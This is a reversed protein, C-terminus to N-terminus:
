SHYYKHYNSGKYAELTKLKKTSARNLVTGLLKSNIPENSGLAEIIVEASTRGWEIVFVFADVHHAAATADVVPVLPPFDLIVYDYQDRAIALLEAMKDSGLVESTHEVPATLVTPLFDLGTVPDQWIVDCLQANGALVELVGLEANPAIRQSLSPNRLDADILLARRGSHATLQALNSAITSKGESPLSSAVGIVKISRAATSMDAAVKIMRITESFRSFPTLVVQRAVGLNRAIARATAPPPNDGPLLSHISANAVEPIVGLCKIGLIREAQQATRFARDLGERAFAVACGLGAGFFAALALVLKTRPHTKEASVAETILRAETSPLSQQQSAEVFRQLFTDHLTRYAKASSELMRLGVQAERTDASALTLKDLSAQLAEERARAIEYESKYSEAIRSLETKSVQQIQQMEKRLSISATHDVGYRSSLEAERKAADIYQQQLRNLVSNQMSDGVAADEIGHELIALVRDLRAKAEATQAKAQIFQTNVESLQQESLLKGGAETLNNKTQFELTLRDATETEQRLEEIREKLWSTAKATAAYKAELQDQIYAEGLANAIRAAKSEDLSEFSIAIVYSRRVRWVSLNNIFYSLAQQVLEDEGRLTLLDAQPPAMLRTAASKVLGLLGTSESTFEPDSALDLMKIVSLALKDSQLVELQSEVASVDFNLESIVSQQQFLQVRRPDLMLVSTATYRIPTVFLYAVALALAVFVFFTIVFWQRRFFGIIQTLDFIAEEDARSSTRHDMSALVPPNPYQRASVRLYQNL